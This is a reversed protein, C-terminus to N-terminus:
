IAKLRAILDEPHIPKPLLDFFHGQAEAKEIMETTALQGSLLIVKMSPFEKHLRIGLEVGSMKPMLVDSLVVGPLLKLATEMAQEGSYAAAADFGNQNLIACITDTILCEDDVVLIRRRGAERQTDFDEPLHVILPPPVQSPL